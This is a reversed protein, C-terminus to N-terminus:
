IVKEERISIAEIKKYGITSYNFCVIEKAIEYAEEESSAEIGKIDVQGTLKVKVTYDM